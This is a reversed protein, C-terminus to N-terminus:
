HHHMQMGAPMPPDKVDDLAKNQAELYTILDGADAPGVGLAPMHVAPFKEMLSVVIPDHRARAQDPHQIFSSLWDHDRRKTVGRLDPGVRDGVGVTHCPACIRKFLAQGPENGLAYGTNSAANFKPQRVQASWKPDMEHIDYVLRDLDGFVSDRMWQGTADNGLVVENRHEDLRHSKDGLKSKIEYMDAPNGTLFLWGHGAGFANAFEKLRAPTDRVPDVTLSVFFIDRGVEDGLKDELQALRATTLPCIDPCNTYIFSILVRRGKIVDDYFNLKKGDQTVVPLNPFYGAGWRNSQAHVSVLTSLLAAALAAVGITLYRKM